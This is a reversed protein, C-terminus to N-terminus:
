KQGIELQKGIRDVISIYRHLSYQPLSTLKEPIGREEPIPHSLQAIIEIMGKRVRSDIRDKIEELSINYAEILHPKVDEYSGGFNFYRYSEPLNKILLWLFNVDTLLYTIVGGAMFLDAGLRRAEWNPSCYKYLLEIPAYRLDGCHGDRDWSPSRKDSKTANGLDALKSVGHGFILINSPKLDQHVIKEEHLQSLGVLFGHIAGIKWALDLQKEQKVNKLSGTAIEFILYPVPLYGSERYEGHAIATVVRSMKKDKCFSLLDREYNYTETLQQLSDTSTGLSKFAYHYNIAKLFGIQGNEINKVEYCSSFAGSDDDETKRRKKIIEWKDIVKGELKSALFEISM